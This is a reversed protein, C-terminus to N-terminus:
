IAKAMNMLSYLFMERNLSEEDDSSSRHRMIEYRRAASLICYYFMAPATDLEPRCWKVFLWRGGEKPTDGANRRIYIAHFWLSNEGSKEASRTDIPTLLIIIVADLM